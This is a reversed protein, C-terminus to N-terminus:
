DNATLKITQLLRVTGKSFLPFGLLRIKENESYYYQVQCWVCVGCPHLVAWYCGESGVRWGMRGNMNKRSDPTIHSPKLRAFKHIKVDVTLWGSFDHACKFILVWGTNPMSANKSSAARELVAHCEGAYAKNQHVDHLSPSPLWNWSRLCPWGM